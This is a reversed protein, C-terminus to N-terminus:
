VFFGLKLELPIIMCFCFFFQSWFCLWWPESFLILKHNEMVLDVEFSCHALNQRKKTEEGLHLPVIRSHQRCLLTRRHWLNLIKWVSAIITGTARRFSFLNPTERMKIVRHSEQHGLLYGVFVGHCYWFSTGEPLSAHVWWQSASYSPHDLLHSCCATCLCLAHWSAFAFHFCLHSYNFLIRLLSKTLSWLSLIEPFWVSAFITLENQLLFFGVCEYLEQFLFVVLGLFLLLVGGLVFGLFMYWHNCPLYQRIIGYIAWVQCHLCLLLWSQWLVSAELLFNHNYADLICLWLKMLGCIYAHSWQIKKLRNLWFGMKLSPM